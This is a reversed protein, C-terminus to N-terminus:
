KVVSGEDSDKGTEKDKSQNTIQKEGPLNEEDSVSTGPPKLPEPTETTEKTDPNTSGSLNANNDPIVDNTRGKLLDDMQEQTLKIETGDPTKPTVKGKGDSHDYKGAEIEKELKELDHDFRIQEMIKQNRLALDARLHAMSIPDEKLSFESNKYALRTAVENALMTYNSFTVLNDAVQRLEEINNFDFNQLNATQDKKSTLGQEAMKLKDLDALYKKHEDSGPVIGDTTIKKNWSEMRDQLKKVETENATIEEKSVATGAKIVTELYFREAKDEGGLEAAKGKIFDKRAVYAKARLMDGIAPDTSFMAEVYSKSVPLAIDGNKKTFIYGGNVNDQKVSIGADKYMKDALTQIDIQQVYKPSSMSLATKADANRFEDAQYQLAKMGVNWYRKRTADDMSTRMREAKGVEDYYNRTYVIDKQINNDTLIPNFLSTAMEQNQPLSLDTASLSNLTESVTKLYADRTKINQDRLMQSNFVSDYLSKVKKAGQQYANERIRLMREIRNFDPDFDSVGAFVDTVNPLFTAM